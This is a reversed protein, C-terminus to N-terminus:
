LVGWGVREAEHQGAIVSKAKAMASSAAAIAKGFNNAKVGSARRKMGAKQLYPLPTPETTVVVALMATEGRRVTKDGEEDAVAKEYKALKKNYEKIKKELEQVKKEPGGRNAIRGFLSDPRRSLYSSHIAAM